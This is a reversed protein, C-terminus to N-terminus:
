QSNNPLYNVWLAKVIEPIDRGLAIRLTKSNM